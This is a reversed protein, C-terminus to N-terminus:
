EDWWLYEYENSPTNRKSPEFLRYLFTINKTLTKYFMIWFYQDQKDTCNSEACKVSKETLRGDKLVTKKKQHVDTKVASVCWNLQETCHEHPERAHQTRWRGEDLPSFISGQFIDCYREPTSRGVSRSPEARSSVAFHRATILQTKEEAPLQFPPVLSFRRIFFSRTCLTIFQM